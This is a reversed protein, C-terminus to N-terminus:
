KLEPKEGMFVVCSEHRPIIQTNESQSLDAKTHNGFRDSDHEYFKELTFEEGAIKMIREVMVQRSIASYYPINNNMCSIAESRYVGRSHMLGGEYIDVYDSYKSHYFLHSWPLQDIDSSVSLNRYWDPSMSKVQAWKDLHGCCKCGCNQIFANHYIYEDALKAFGHGGAEHQIIGRFDLPYASRSVPCIALASGDGYMLTVGEYVSENLLLIVLSNSINLGPKARMAWSFCEADDPFLIRNSLYTGFKSDKITSATGIGSDKSMSIVAYVNFYDKYTSYPEIDFYANNGERAHDLFKGSAIDKADYGDGIYVIDIGAGRTATQLPIADGDSYDADFQQVDLSYTYDKGNLEFVVEGERGKYDQYQYVDERVNFVDDTRDMESITVTIDTKGTGSSPSITVWDPKSRIQWDANAPARLILSHTTSANLTRILSRSVSFDYHAGIRKFENWGTEAQYLRVSEAPVEVTFNDKPVGNFANSLVLPPESAHCIIRSLYRCLYFANSGITQITSPLELSPAYYCANFASDELVIVGEPIIIPSSLSQNSSFARYGIVKLSPPLSIASFPVSYFAEKPIEKIGDPIILEGGFGCNTFVGFGLEVVNNLDLHGTFGSSAFAQEPLTKILDPIQLNGIFSNGAFAGRGINKLGSPLLFQGSFNCLHFANDDIYEIAENLQLQGSLSKCDRFASSAIEKLESSLTLSSINTKNFAYYGITRVSDPIILAGSLGTGRFANDGIEQTEEPFTFYYLTQKSSFAEKPIVKEIPYDYIRVIEDNRFTTRPENRVTRLECEKMNIAELIEMSDRMFYFDADTVPGCVKLNRIKDPNKGANKIVRGLTGPTELTAVYYQRAEGGHTNRDETWDVIQTAGLELEYEGSPTKKSIKIEVNMQKEAQYLVDDTQSFGYVVGGLTISFLRTGASVTQPIVIARFSGNEQPCMVIGDLQPGGVATVTGQALNITAKRTTNTVLISKSLAGFEDEAFGDKEVLTVQVASLKHKLTVPVTAEAPSINEAKGWLFDSAEYGSLASVTAETSQDKQVEFGYSDVDTITTQYPYTLYLDVHTNVDKYYVAKVPNWKQNKEDFIYKVNDAQNGSVALTGPLTNNDTYNVAYLGIADKDVFGAANAKTHVQEIAGSIRIPYASSDAMESDFAPEQTCAVM